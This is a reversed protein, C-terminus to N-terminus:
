EALQDSACSHVAERGYVLYFQCRARSIEKATTEGTDSTDVQQKRDVGASEEEQFM